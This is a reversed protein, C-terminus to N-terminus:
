LITTLQWSFQDCILQFTTYKILSAAAESVKSMYPWSPWVDAARSFQSVHNHAYFKLFNVKGHSAHAGRLVNHLSVEMAASAAPMFIKLFLYGLVELLLSTFFGSSAM